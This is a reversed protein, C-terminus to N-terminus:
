PEKDSNNLSTVYSRWRPYEHELLQAPWDGYWGYENRRESSIDALHEYKKGDRDSFFPHNDSIEYFRAWLPTANADPIIIKNRGEPATADDVWKQRIGTIKVDEFWQVAANVAEQVGQSPEPLSMLFEVIGVSEKGSLSILEYARAAAPQLTFEDYQACWATLKGDVRIQTRLICDVARYLADHARSIDKADLWAFKEPHLSIERLLRLVGTMADDNYTIHDYYGRRLPYFQPWGGNDYQAKLIYEFGKHFATEVRPSPNVNMVRALFFMQTWTAGNDMTSMIKSSGEISKEKKKEKWMRATFDINKPWGGSKRQWYLINKTIRKGERSRYWADPHQLLKEWLGSQVSYEHFDISDGTGGSLPLSLLLGLMFLCTLIIRRPFVSASEATSDGIGSLRLIKETM